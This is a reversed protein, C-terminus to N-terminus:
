VPLRVVEAFAALGFYSAISVGIALIILEIADRM